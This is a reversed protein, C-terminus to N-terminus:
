RIRFLLCTVNDEAGRGHAIAILSHCIQGLDSHKYISRGLEEVGAYRTLGDTTLLVTDGSKLDCIFFDPTVVADVGIARTIVQQMHAPVGDSAGSWRRRMLEAAYSHDRTVQVCRDGRLFYARSDGLNGILLSDRLVCAAVLTTGMGFLNQDQKAMNWVTSNAQAIASRLRTAPAMDRGCLQKYAQLTTKVATSSAIEGGAHGGMGDCVVFINADLVYGFSDENKPRRLGRDSLAAVDIQLEAITATTKGALQIEQEQM